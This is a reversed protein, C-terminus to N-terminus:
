IGVDQDSEQDSEQEQNQRTSTSLRQKSHRLYQYCYKRFKEDTFQDDSFRHTSRIAATVNFFFNIKKELLCCSYIISLIITAIRKKQFATKQEDNRKIGNNNVHVSASDKFINKLVNSVATQPRDGDALQKVFTIQFLANQNSFLYIFICINM